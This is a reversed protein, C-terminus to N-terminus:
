ASVSVRAPRILSDEIRYGPQFCEVITGEPLDSEVSSMVEHINPDVNEGSEPSIIKVGEQTLLEDFDRKVIEIGDRIGGNEQNLARVINDRIPLARELVSESATKKLNERETSKMEKYSNFEDVKKRLEEELRNNEKALDDRERKLNSISMAANKDIESVADIIDDIDDVDYGSFPRKYIDENLEPITAQKEGGSSDGGSESRSEVDETEQADIEEDGTEDEKDNEDSSM